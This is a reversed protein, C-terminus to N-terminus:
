SYPNHTPTPINTNFCEDKKNIVNTITNFPNLVNLNAENILNQKDNIDNSLLKDLSNEAFILEKPIYNKRSGQSVDSLVSINASEGTKNEDLKEKICKFDKGAKIAETSDIIVLFIKFNKFNFV